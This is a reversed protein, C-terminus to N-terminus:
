VEHYFFIELSQIRVNIIGDFIKRLKQGTLEGRPNILIPNIFVNQCVLSM